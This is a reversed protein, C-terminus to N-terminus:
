ESLLSRLLSLNKKDSEHEIAKPTELLKPIGRFREDNLLLRFAEV